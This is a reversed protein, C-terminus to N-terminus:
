TNIGVTVVFKTSKDLIIVKHVKYYQLRPSSQTLRSLNCHIWQLLCDLLTRQCMKINKVGLSPRIHGFFIAQIRLLHISM